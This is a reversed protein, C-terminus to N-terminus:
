KKKKKVAQRPELLLSQVPLDKELEAHAYASRQRRDPTALDEKQLLREGFRYHWREYDTGMYLAEFPCAEVCLGCYICLGGDLQYRTVPYNLDCRLCRACEREAEERSWGIEVGEFSHIRREHAIMPREPRVGSLPACERPPVEAMVALRESIDGDGGLFRDIAKAAKRGQAICEIVTSPGLVADGAAYVGPVATVMTEKDAVIRGSKDAPLKFGEPLIVNQSIAAIINDLEVAYESGKIPEPRRRGSADEAGLKMRVNELILKGDQSFVGTPAALFSFAVGEDIAEQVEEAAAPMEARTRRYIVSVEAGLRVAARACDMATNGGGIVAVRRGLQVPRGLNVERLFRVGGLVRADNDGPVGLAQAQHAGIAALVANFGQEFLAPVSEVPSNLRIEAGANEIERIDAMMTHKPLRYDPIGVKVMGGPVALAEFVTVKHGKRSLYYAATLGAPGAGIVAVRKGTPAASRVGAKWIGNDNNVAYRKLMRIAIAEDIAGRTCGGECPHACIYACVSPFPISERVVAVAEGPQGQIIARIYRAADVGAPCRQTCPAKDAWKSGDPATAISICGHPCNDACTYCGTCDKPSWALVTGRERRSVFLKEEPYQVTVPRRFFNKLTVAMGRAIGRGYRNPAM